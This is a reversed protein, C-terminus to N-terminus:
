QKNCIVKLAGEQTEAWDGFVRYTITLEDPYSDYQNPRTKLTLMHISAPANIFCYVKEDSYYSITSTNDANPKPNSCKGAYAIQLVLGVTPELRPSFITTVKFDIQFLKTIANGKNIVSLKLNHEAQRDRPIDISTESNGSDSFIVELQPKAMSKRIQVITLYLTVAVLFLAAGSLALQALTLRPLLAETPHTIFPLGIALGVATIAGGIVIIYEHRKFFGM